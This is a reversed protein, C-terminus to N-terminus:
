QEDHLHSETLELFVNCDTTKALSRTVRQLTVTVQMREKLTKRTANCKSM